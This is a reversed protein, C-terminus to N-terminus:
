CGVSEQREPGIQEPGFHLSLLLIKTYEDESGHTRTSIRSIIKIIACYTGSVNCLPSNWCVPHRVPKYSLDYETM